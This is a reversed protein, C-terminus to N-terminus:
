VHLQPTRLLNYAEATFELTQEGGLPEGESEGLTVDGDYGKGSAYDKNRLAIPAGTAAAARFFIVAPNDPNNLM